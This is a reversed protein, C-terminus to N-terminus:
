RVVGSDNRIADGISVNESPEEISAGLTQLLGQFEPFSTAIMSADDVTVSKESALGLILFSMAIRHDLHTAVIAGGEVKQSGNVILTDGRAEAQVGCAKLGDIM